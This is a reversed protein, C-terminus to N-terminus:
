KENKKQEGRKKKERKTRRSQVFDKEKKKMADSQSGIEVWTWRLANFFPFSLSFVFLHCFFLTFELATMVRWLGARTGEGLHVLNGYTTVLLGIM